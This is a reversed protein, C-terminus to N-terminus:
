THGEHKQWWWWPLSYWSNSHTDIQTNAYLYPDIKHKLVNLLQIQLGQRKYTNLNAEAMTSNLSVVFAYTSLFSISCDFLTVLSIFLLSIQKKCEREKERKTFRESQSDTEREECKLNVLFFNSLLLLVNNSTSLFTLNKTCICFWQIAASYLLM